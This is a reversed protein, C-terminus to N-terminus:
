NKLFKEEIKVLLKYIEEYIKSNNRDKYNDPHYSPFISKFINNFSDQMLKEKQSSDFKIFPYNEILYKIFEMPQNGDEVKQKFANYIENIDEDIKKKDIIIQNEIEIRKKEIEENLITLQKHWEPEDEDDIELRDYIFAIRKNLNKYLEFDYNKFIKFNIKIINAKIYAEEETVEGKSLSDAMEQYIDIIFHIDDSGSGNRSLMNSISTFGTKGPLFQTNKQSIQNKVAKVFADIEAIKSGYKKEIEKLTVEMKPGMNNKLNDDIYKKISEAKQYFKRSYYRAYKKREEIIKDGKKYLIEVCFLIIECYKKPIKDKLEIFPELLSEIDDNIFKPMEEKIKNIIDETYNEDEDIIMIQSYFIFLLKTYDFIKEYFYESDNDKKLIEYINIIKLCLECLENLSAIKEEENTIKKLSNNKENIDNVMKHIEELKKNSEPNKKMRIITTPHDNNIEEGKKDTNVIDEISVEGTSKIGTNEVEANLTVKGRNDCLLSMIFSVSKAKGKPLNDLIFEGLLINDKIFKENGYYIKIKFYPQDDMITKYRRKTSEKPLLTNKAILVSMIQGIRSEELNKSVVGVGLSNPLYDMTKKAPSKKVLEYAKWSAGMINVEEPNINDKIKNSNFKKNLIEKINPIKSSGGGIIVDDIEDSTYHSDSLIKDIMEEIKKFSDEFMDNFQQKKIEIYLNSNNFFNFVKITISDSKDVKKKEKECQIKLRKVADLEKLIEKKDIQYKQCFDHLCYDILKNDFDKGGINNDELTKKIEIKKNEVTLISINLSGGGLDFVLVNRKNKDKITKIINPSFSDKINIIKGFDYAFAAAIPEEVIGLVDIGALKAAEKISLIQNEGFSAPVAFVAQYITEGSFESAHKILKKFILSIIYELSYFEDNGKRNIKIELKGNRSSIDYHIDKLDKIDNINKGILRKIETITNKANAKNFILEEGVIENDNLIAVVSPTCTDGMSNPVIYFKGNKYIGIKSNTFGLEIGAAIM